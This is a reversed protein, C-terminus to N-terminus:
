KKTKVSDVKKGKSRWAGYSEYLGPNEDFYGRLNKIVEQRGAEFSEKQITDLRSVKFGLYCLTALSIALIAMSPWLIAKPIIKAQSVAVKINGIDKRMSEREWREKELHERIIRQVEWTTAEVKVNDVNETLRELRDIAKKFGDLEDTLLEMVEDLKKYGM